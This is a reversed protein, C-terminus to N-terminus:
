SRLVRVGAPTGVSCSVPLICCSYSCLAPFADFSLSRMLPLSSVQLQHLVGCECFEKKAASGHSKLIVDLLLSLDAMRARQRASLENSPASTPKSAEKAIEGDERDRCM